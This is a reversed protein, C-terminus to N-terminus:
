IPYAPETIGSLVPADRQPNYFHNPYAKPIYLQRNYVFDDQKGILGNYYSANLGYQLHIDNAISNIKFPELPNEIFTKNPQTLYGIMDNIRKTEKYNPETEPKLLGYGRGTFENVAGISNENIPTNITRVNFLGGSM